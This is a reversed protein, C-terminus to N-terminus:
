LGEKGAPRKMVIHPTISNPKIVAITGKRLAEIGKNALGRVLAQREDRELESHFIISDNQKDWDGKIRYSEKRSDKEHREAEVTCLSWQKLPSDLRTPYLRVFGLKHSYGITTVSQKGAIHEPAARGLVILDIKMGFTACCGIFSNAPTKRIAHADRTYRVPSLFTRM